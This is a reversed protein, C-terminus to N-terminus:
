ASPNNQSPQKIKLSSVFHNSELRIKREATDYNPSTIQIPILFGDYKKGLVWDDNVFANSTVSIGVGEPLIIRVDGVFGITRLHTEGVPIEAETMDLRIDGIFLTIEEDTVSWHGERRVDGIFQQLFRVDPSILRPRLIIWVGTFILLLAWLFPWMNIHFLAGFLFLVGIIILLVAMWIQSQNRM